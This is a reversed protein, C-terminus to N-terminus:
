RSIRGIKVQTRFCAVLEPVDEHPGGKLALSSSLDAQKM